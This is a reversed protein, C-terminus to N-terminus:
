PKIAVGNALKFLAGINNVDAFAILGDTNSSIFLNFGLLTYMIPSVLWIELPIELTILALVPASIALIKPLFGLSKDAATASFIDELRLTFM